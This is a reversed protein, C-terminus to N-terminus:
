ECKQLRREDQYSVKRCDIFLKYNVNKRVIRLANRDFIQLCAVASTKKSARGFQVRKM